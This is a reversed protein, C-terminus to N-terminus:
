SQLNNSITSIIDSNSAIFVAADVTSNTHEINQVILSADAATTLNSNSNLSSSSSIRQLNSANDAVNLNRSIDDVKSNLKILATNVKEFNREINYLKFEQSDNIVIMSDTIKTALSEQSNIISNTANNIISNTLTISSTNLCLYAIGTLCCFLLTGVFISNTIFISETVSSNNILENSSNLIESNTSIKSIQQEQLEILKTQSTLQEKLSSIEEHLKIYEIYGWTFTVTPFLFYIFTLFNESPKFIKLM